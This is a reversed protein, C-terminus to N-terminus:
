KHLNFRIMTTSLPTSFKRWCFLGGGNSSNRTKNIKETVKWFIFLLLGPWYLNTEQPLTKVSFILMPRLEFFPKWPTRRRGLSPSATFVGFILLQNLGIKKHFAIILRHVTFPLFSLNNVDILFYVCLSLSLYISLFLLTKALFNTTPFTIQRFLIHATSFTSASRFVEAVYVYM